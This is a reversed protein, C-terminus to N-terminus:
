VARWPPAEFIQLYQWDNKIQVSSPLSHEAELAQGGDGALYHPPPPPTRVPGM